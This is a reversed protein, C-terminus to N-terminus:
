HPLRYGAEYAAVYRELCEILLQQDTMRRSRSGLARRARHICIAAALKEDGTGAALLQLDCIPMNALHM